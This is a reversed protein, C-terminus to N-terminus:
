GVGVRVLFMSFIGLELDFWFLIWDVDCEVDGLGINEEGIVVVFKDMLMFLLVFMDRVM